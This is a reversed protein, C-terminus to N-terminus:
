TQGSPMWEKELSNSELLGLDFDVMERITEGINKTPAWGLSQRIKRNDASVPPHDLPRFHKESSVVYKGWNQLGVHNFAYSVLDSVSHTEGTAVIYDEPAAAELIRKIAEAFDGAYGWDRRIELDGLELIKQRGTAIRAVSSSIKRTLFQEKRLPSEHNFLIGIRVDLGYATRFCQALEHAAVKSIAYPSTPRLPTLEDVQAGNPLGFMESSSAQYFTISDGAVHRERVLDLLSAVAASNTSITTSASQWSGAVSSAAALNVIAGPSHIRVTNEIFGADTVSGIATIGNPCYKLFRIGQNADRVQGIVKYGERGLLRALLLGDQGAAGTILVSRSKDLM